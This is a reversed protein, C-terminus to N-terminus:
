KHTMPKFHNPEEKNNAMFLLFFLKLSRFFYFEFKYLM